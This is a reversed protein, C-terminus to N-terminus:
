SRFDSKKRLLCELNGADLRFETCTLLRKTLRLHFNESLVRIRPLGGYGTRMLLLTLAFLRQILRFSDWTQPSQPQDRQVVAKWYAIGLPNTGTNKAEICLATESGYM